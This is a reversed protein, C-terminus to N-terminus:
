RQVVHFSTPPTGSQEITQARAADLWAMAEDLCEHVSPGQETGPRIIPSERPLLATAGMLSIRAADILAGGLSEVFVPPSNPSGTLLAQSNDAAVSEKSRCASCIPPDTSVWECGGECPKKETCGCYICVLETM